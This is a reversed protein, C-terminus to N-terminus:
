HPWSYNKLIWDLLILTDGFRDTSRMTVIIVNKEDLDYEYILVEGAADTRGTKIGVTGEKTWLLDNTNVLITKFGSSSVVEVEKTKVIDKVLGEARAAKALLYLDKATSVQAGDLGVPNAFSTAELGLEKAKTNMEGVFDSYPISATALTCAADASSNVLLSYLLARVSYADGAYFGAKLGEIETCFEPVLLEEELTYLELAVLATMLKTTSAPPLEFDSNIDLLVMGTKVDVAYASVASIKPLVVNGTSVPRRGELIELVGSDSPTLVTPINSFGANQSKVYFSSLAVFVIITYLSLRFASFVAKKLIYGIDDIVWLVRIVSFVAVLQIRQTLTIKM